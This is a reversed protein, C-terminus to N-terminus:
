PLGRMARSNCSWPPETPRRRNARRLRSFLICARRFCWKLFVAMMAKRSRGAKDYVIKRCCFRIPFLPQCIYIYPRAFCPQIKRYNNVQVRMTEDAPDDTIKSETLQRKLRELFSYCHQSRWFAQDMMGIVPVLITRKIILCLRLFIIDHENDRAFAIALIIGHNFGEEFCQFWLHNPFGYELRTIRVFPWREIYQRSRYKWLVAM